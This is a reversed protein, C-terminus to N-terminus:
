QYLSLLSLLSLMHHLLKYNHFNGVINYNNTIIVQLHDIFGILLGVDRRSGSMCTIINVRNRMPFKYM